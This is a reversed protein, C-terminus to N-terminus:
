VRCAAPVPVDLGEEAPVKRLCWAVTGRRSDAVGTFPYAFAGASAECGYLRRSGRVLGTPSCRVPGLRGPVLHRAHLRPAGARIARELAGGGPHGVPLVTARQAREIRRRATAAVRAQEHRAARKGATISPILAVATGVAALAALVILARVARPLNRWLFRPLGPLGPLDQFREEAETPGFGEWASRRSRGQDDVSVV